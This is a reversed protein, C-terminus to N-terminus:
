KKTSLNPPEIQAPCLIALGVAAFVIVVIAVILAAGGILCSWKFIFCLISWLLSM